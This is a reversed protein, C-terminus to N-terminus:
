NDSIRCEKSCYPKLRNSGSKIICNRCIMAECKQCNMLPYERLLYSDSCTIKNSSANRCIISKANVEFGRSLYELIFTCIREYPLNDNLYLTEWINERIIKTSKPLTKNVVNTETKLTNNELWFSREDVSLPEYNNYYEEEINLIQSNSYEGDILDFFLRLDSVKINFFERNPVVRKAYKELIKHLKKEKERPNSVKKKFELKFDPLSFTNKNAAKLRDEPCTNKGWTCGVKCMGPNRKSTICYIWGFNM